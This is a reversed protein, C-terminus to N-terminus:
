IVPRLTAALTAAFDQPTSVIASSSLTLKMTWRNEYQNEANIFPMQMGDTAYYPTIGAAQMADCGYDDRFLTAIVLAYDSGNPGHIDLQVTIQSSHSRDMHDPNVTKPWTDSNTSLRERMTPTMVIFDAGAPEVVRNAQSQFVEVGAPVCSLLFTRLGTM